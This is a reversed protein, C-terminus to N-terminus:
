AGAARDLLWGRDDEGIRRFGFGALTREFAEGRIISIRDVRDMLGEAGAVIAAESGNTTVSLLAVREGSALRVLADLRDAAVTVTDFGARDRRNTDFTEGVLNAAEHGRRVLLELDRRESWAASRVFEVNGLGVEAAVRRSTEVSERDPEVVVVRGSPGVRLAFTLFRSRGALAIDRPAGIQIVTDGPRLSRYPLLVRGAVAAGLRTLIARPALRRVAYYAARLAHHLRSHRDLRYIM